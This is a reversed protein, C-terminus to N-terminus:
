VEGREVSLAVIFIKDDRQIVKSWKRAGSTADLVRLWHVVSAWNPPTNPNTYVPGGEDTWIELRVGDRMFLTPRELAELVKCIEQHLGEYADAVNLTKFRHTGM